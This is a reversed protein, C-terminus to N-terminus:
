ETNTNKLIRLVNEFYIKGNRVIRDKPYESVWYKISSRIIMSPNYGSSRYFEYKHKELFNELTQAKDFYFYQRTNGLALIVELYDKKNKSM